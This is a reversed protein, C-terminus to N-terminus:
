GRVGGSVKGVQDVGALAHYEDARAGPCAYRGQRPRRRQFAEGVVRDSAGPEHRGLGGAAGVARCTDPGEEDARTRTARRNLTPTAVRIRPIERGRDELDQGMVRHARSQGVACWHLSGRTGEPM